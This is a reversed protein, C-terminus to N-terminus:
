AVINSASNTCATNIPIDKLNYRSAAQFALSTRKSGEVKTVLLACVKLIIINNRQLQVPWM